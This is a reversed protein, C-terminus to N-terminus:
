KDFRKTDLRGIGLLYEEVAATLLSDASNRRLIIGLFLRTKVAHSSQGVKDLVLIHGRGPRASLDGLIDIVQLGGTSTVSSLTEPIDYTSSLTPTYSVTFVDTVKSGRVQIRFRMPVQNNPIKNESDTTDIWGEPSTPTSTIDSIEVGNRYVTIDGDTRNTYFMLYGSDNFLLSTDEQEILVLQEHVVRETNIPLIPLYSTRILVNDANLDQRVLWYEISSLYHKDDDVDQNYTEDTYALNLNADLYPRSEVTKIGVHAPSQIEIPKSIYIGVDEYDALGARINDFGISYEYYNHETSEQRGTINIISQNKVNSVNQYVHDQVLSLSANYGQMPEAQYQMLLDDHIKSEFQQNVPNSNQFTLILKNTSFKELLVAIPGDFSLDPSTLTQVTHSDDVYQIKELIIPYKTAPEIELFNIERVLNFSVELKTRVPINSVRPLNVSQIWYTGNEGDIINEIKLGPPSVVLASQPAESDFIQKVSQFKYYTKSQAPLILREGVPDIAADNTAELALGTRPDTIQLQYINDRSTREEQIERFTSFLAESFGHLDTNLFKYTAVKAELESIAARMNKLLGDKILAQHATQIEDIQGAEQFATVLDDQVRDMAFNWQDASTLDGPRALFINTTPILTTGTVDRVLLELRRAFESLSQVQGANRQKTLLSIIQQMQTKGVLSDFKKLYAM